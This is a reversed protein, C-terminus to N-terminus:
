EEDNWCDDFEGEAMYDLLNEDGQVTFGDVTYGLFPLDKVDYITEYDEIDKKSVEKFDFLEENGNCLQTKLINFAEKTFIHGEFVDSWVKVYRM